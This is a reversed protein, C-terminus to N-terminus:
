KGRQQSPLCAAAKLAVRGEEYLLRKTGRERESATKARSGGGGMGTQEVAM